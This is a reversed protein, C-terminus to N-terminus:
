DERYPLSQAYERDRECWLAYQPDWAAKVIGTPGQRQKAVILEADNEKATGRTEGEKLPKYSPRFPFLVNDADQEISGSERLDSLIPRKDAREEVKRSLQSLACVHVGLERAMNKLGRSMASVENTRNDNRRGGDPALLQLYDVVVLEIGHEAKLRRARSRISAVTADARDNIFIPCQSLRSCANGVREWEHAALNGHKMANMSVKAEMAVYRTGIQRQSMELSFLAVAHGDCAAKWSLSMGFATKGMSPRGAIITLDGPELGGTMYNLDALPTMIGTPPIGTRRQEAALEIREFVDDIIGQMPKTDSAATKPRISRVLEEARDCVHEIEEYEEAYALHEIELAAAVAKRLVSKEQVVRAYYEVHACTSLADTLQVLYPFGGVGDLEGTKDLEARLTSLDVAIDRRYLSLIAQFIRRHADRYFDEPTLIEDAIEISQREIIMAGLTAQEMELSQQPIRDLAM